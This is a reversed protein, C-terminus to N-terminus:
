PVNADAEEPNKVVEELVAIWSFGGEAEGGSGDEM